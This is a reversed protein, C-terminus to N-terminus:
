GTGKVASPSLGMKATFRSFRSLGRHVTVGKPTSLQGIHPLKAADHDGLRGMNRMNDCEKDNSKIYEAFRASTKCPSNDNCGAIKRRGDLNLM